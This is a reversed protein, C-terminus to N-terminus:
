GSWGQFKKLSANWTYFAILLFTAAFFFSIVIFQASLLGLLAQAPFSMIIGIPIAFTLLSRVPENYISIPFRGFSVLDRYIWIAQSASTTYLAVSLAIIHLATILILSNVLLLFYFFVNAASLAPLKLAFYVTLIIYPILTMLDIFDVGGILIRLFPHYPKTMIGEVEGRTFRWRFRYVERFLFQGLADLLSYTLYFFLVQEVGYGKLNGIKSVIFFIFFFLMAFRILKGIGFLLIGTRDQVSEKFAMLSYVWFITLSYFFRKMM